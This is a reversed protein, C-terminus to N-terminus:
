AGILERGILMRRIENTGAGIDLLKADGGTQGAQGSVSTINVIRGFRREIMGNYEPKSLQKFESRYMKATQGNAYDQILGAIAGDAKLQLTTTRVSGDSERGSMWSM